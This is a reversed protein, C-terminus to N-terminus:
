KFTGNAIPGRQAWTKDVTHWPNCSLHHIVYSHQGLNLFTVINYLQFEWPHSCVWGSFLLFSLISAVILLIKEIFHVRDSSSLGVMLAGAAVGFCLIYSMIFDFPALEAFIGAFGIALFIKGTRGNSSANDYAILLGMGILLCGM